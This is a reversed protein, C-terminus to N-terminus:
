TRRVRIHGVVPASRPTPKLAGRVGFGGATVGNRPGGPPQLRSTKSNGADTQSKVQPLDQRAGFPWKKLLLYQKWKRVLLDKEAMKALIRSVMPRSCGIMEALDEHYLEPILITGRADKVGARLALESLVVELREAFPLNLLMAFWRLNQSFLTNLAQMIEVLSDPDLGRLLRAVHDRSVLAVACKSSSQAEFLRVRRGKSDVYDAFGILEGPGALRILTRSGNGVACYIKVYGSLVCALLDNTSGEGFILAGKDFAVAISRAIIEEAFESPIGWKHLDSRLRLFAEDYNHNPNSNMARSEELTIIKSKANADVEGVTGGRHGNKL